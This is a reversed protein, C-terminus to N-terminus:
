HWTGMKHQMIKTLIQPNYLHHSLSYMEFADPKAKILIGLAM